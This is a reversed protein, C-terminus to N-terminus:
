KREVITYSVKQTSVKGYRDVAKVEIQHEGAALNSPINGRWLHTSAEANSPRRGSLLEKSQDFKFLTSLFAPDMTEVYAMNSWKGGDVSYIVKDGKAGMFFNVFVGASTNKRKEVVKPLFVEMQYAADKGAVKYDISYQNGKLNLFAYGKPTGDRMTSSPTGNAKMEGSYWDGSTTGANYEHHPKAQLWGDAKGYFNQRQLHTHASMSLTHPYDKLLEFLRNRDKLRFSNGEKDVGDNLLPIHFALVILYDKSVHKLDNEIFKFQDERFGGWYGKGDRPDPYLVDDLVIFHVKGYNLSYNAPGFDAEFTEDSLSDVKADFNLDHNGLLNYWPLGIKKIAKIYPSNLSLDNGVLDGLSLGFAVNKIGVVEDVIDKEFFDVEEQTYPQPDGFVLVRFEDSEEKKVLPFDLSAPLAGTLKSGQFKFDAPSGSPKHIYHNSPQNNANLPSQYGSPKVVFIVQSERKPLSYVGKNDTKVVEVGNSVAVGALGIEKKERKGNANEDHYVVGQINQAFVSSSTLAVLLIGRIITRKM